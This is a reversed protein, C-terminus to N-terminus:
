RQMRSCSGVGGFNVCWGMCCDSNQNCPGSFRCCSGSSGCAGICCPMDEGCADGSAACEGMTTTTTTSTTTTAGCCLNAVPMGVAIMFCKLADAVTIAEDGTPDCICEPACTMSGTAAKLIYLCDIATPTPGDSAPQTCGGTGAHSPSSLALVVAVAAALIPTITNSISQRRM